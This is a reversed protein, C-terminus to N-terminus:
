SIPKPLRRCRSRPTGGRRDVSRTTLLSVCHIPLSRTNALSSDGIFFSVQSGNYGQMKMGDEAVWLYDAVRLLHRQFPEADASCGAAHFASLM